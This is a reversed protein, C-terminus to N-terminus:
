RAHKKNKGRGALFFVTEPKIRDLAMYVSRFDSPSMFELPVAERIGLRDLRWLNEPGKDRSTGVVAQGEHVLHQALYSGTQGTVGVIMAVKKM